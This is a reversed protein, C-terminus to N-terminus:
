MVKYVAKRQTSFMILDGRSVPHPMNPVLPVGNVCTGNSSNMDIVQYQEGQKEIRLHLRSIFSIASSFNFDCQGKGSKDYRGITAYGKGMDIEILSPLQMGASDELHLIFKDQSDISEVVQFIETYDNRMDYAEERYEGSGGYSSNQVAIPQASVEEQSPEALPSMASSDQALGAAPSKQEKKGIRLGSLLGGEKPQKKEKKEKKEKKAKAPKDGGMSSFLNQMIDGGVEVKGFEAAQGARQGNVERNEAPPVDKIPKEAVAEYVPHQPLLEKSVAESRMAASQAPVSQVAASEQRLLIELLSLPSGQGSMLDRLLIMPFSQDDTVEINMILSQFFRSIEEETHLQKKQPLYLYKIEMSNKDYTMYHRDLYLNHYDLFWDSCERFPILLNKLLIIYDKKKLKEAFYSFRNGVIEYRLELQGDIVISNMPLLFDPLDRKLVKLEIENVENPMIEMVAGPMNGITKDKLM